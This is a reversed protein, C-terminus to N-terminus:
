LLWWAVRIACATLIAGILDIARIPIREGAFPLHLM